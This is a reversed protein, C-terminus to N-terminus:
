FIGTGFKDAIFFKVLDLSVLFGSTCSLFYSLKSILRDNMIEVPCLMRLGWAYCNAKSQSKIRNWM